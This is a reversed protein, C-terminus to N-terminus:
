SGSPQAPIESISVRIEYKKGEREFWCAPHPPFTRARLLDILDEGRYERDLRVHSAENLEARKHETGAEPQPLCPIRGALVEPCIERFLSEMTALAKGYLTEGTDAPSVAIARQFAIPGRDVSRVVHHITVGFPTKDVLAWFNPDKGRGYPLLSPHMNLFTERATAIVSESLIHPWWALIGIQFPIAGLEELLGGNASGRKWALVRTAGASWPGTIRERSAPDIEERVVIAKVTAHQEALIKSIRGGFDSDAFLVISKPESLPGTPM